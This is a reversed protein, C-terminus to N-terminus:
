AHETATRPLGLRSVTREFRPDARLPKFRPDVGMLVIQDNRQEIAEDLYAFAADFNGLAGHVVALTWPPRVPSRDLEDLIALADDMRGAKVYLLGVVALYLPTRHVMPLSTELAAIAEDFREQEMLALGLYWYSGPISPDSEILARMMQEARTAQGASVLINAM